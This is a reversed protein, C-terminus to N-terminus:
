PHHGDSLADCTYRKSDVAVAVAVALAAATAAVVYTCYIPWPVVSM